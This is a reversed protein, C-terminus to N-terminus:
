PQPKRRGIGFRRWIAASVPIMVTAIVGLRKWFLDGEFWHQQAAETRKQSDVLQQLLQGNADLTDDGLSTGRLSSLLAAQSSQAQSLSSTSIQRATGRPEPLSSSTARRVIPQRKPPHTVVPFYPGIGATNTSFTRVVKPPHNVVPRGGRVLARAIPAAVGRIFPPM